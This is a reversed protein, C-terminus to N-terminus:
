VGDDLMEITLDTGMKNKYHLLKLKLWNLKALMSKNRELQRNWSEIPNKTDVMCVKYLINELLNM